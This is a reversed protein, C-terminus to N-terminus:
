GRDVAQLLLAAVEPHQRDWLEGSRRADSSEPDYEDSWGVHKSRQYDERMRRLGALADKGIGALIRTNDAPQRFLPELAAMLETIELATAAALARHSFLIERLTRPQDAVHTLEVPLVGVASGQEHPRGDREGPCAGTGRRYGHCGCHDTLGDDAPPHDGIAEILQASEEASLLEGEVVRPDGGYAEIMSEPDHIQQAERHEAEFLAQTEPDTWGSLLFEPVAGAVPRADNFEHDTPM